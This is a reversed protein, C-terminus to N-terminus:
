KFLFFNQFVIAHNWNKFEESMLCISLIFLKFFFVCKVLTCKLLDETLFILILGKVFIRKQFENQSKALNEQKEAFLFNAWVTYWTNIGVKWKLQSLYNIVYTLKVLCSVNTRLPFLKNEKLIEYFSLCLTTTIPHWEKWRANFNKKFFFPLTRELVNGLKITNNFLKIKMHIQKRLNLVNVALTM